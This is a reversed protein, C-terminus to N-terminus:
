LDREPTDDAVGTWIQWAAIAQYRLMALGNSVVAGRQAAKRIFLTERPNYVMDFCLTGPAIRQYDIAPAADTRPWMGCPTANVIVRAQPLACTNFEGYSICRGSVGGPLPAEPHRSVFNAEIGIRGFALAAASAAGGTGLIFAEPSEPPLLASIARLFGRIDSNFGKLAVIRGYSDRQPAIVNVAQAQRAFPSLSDLYPIVERKYPVTVNLGGLDNGLKEILAPLASLNDLEFLSYGAAIGEESFKRNFFGASYSHGLRRGILGYKMVMRM